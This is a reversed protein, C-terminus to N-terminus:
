VISIRLMEDPIVLALNEEVDVTPNVSSKTLETMGYYSTLWCHKKVGDKKLSM